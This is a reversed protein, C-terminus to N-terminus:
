QVINTPDQAAMCRSVVSKSGARRTCRTRPVNVAYIADQGALSPCPHSHTPIYIMNRVIQTHIFLVSRYPTARYM